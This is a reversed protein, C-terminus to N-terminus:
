GQADPKKLAKARRKKRRLIENIIIAAAVGAAVWFQWSHLLKSFPSRIPAHTRYPVRHGRVLLRQTNVGYPTCTLLTVEDRGAHIQLPETNKPRVVSIKDVEYALHRDLVTIYFKDKKKMQDLDSFLKAGSLGRHAALVAHTGKGGIPLSTGEVHGVGEELVKASTGHFIALRQQIRPIELYGMVGNDTPNLLDVYPHKKLYNEQTFADVIINATHQRNYKKAQRWEEAIRKQPTRDVKSQYVTVLQNNRITNWLDSITPYLLVGAGVVFLLIILTLSARGKNAKNHQGRRKSANRSKRM